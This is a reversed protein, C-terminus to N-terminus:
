IRRIHLYDPATKIPRGNLKVQPKECWGPMRLAISFQADDKPHVTLEIKEQWPYNTRQEIRVTQGGVSLEATSAAYLHVYIENYNTSYIYQAFSALLRALNPPCCACGFWEQRRGAINAHVQPSLAEDHVTLPNAYFFRDGKLSVGSIVGNYLAREMVDAYEAKPEIQLFRQAAFVLAINACTEAYATENPLDFDTTFREGERRSGVGGTIYMRRQVASQWLRKCAAFLKKDGIEAAVDIMGSLLYLARVAHGSIDRQDRVPKHASFYEYTRDPKLKEGHVEAELDFYNPQQGREDIFFQALQLYKEQKTARYMKMLALEIEPHGCYGRKQGPNPGFTAIIHDAYRTMVSLLKRDGTAEFHAVAAEMLHGACYIEHMDRLNSWRKEPEVITFYINLYGDPQQAAAILDIADNVQKALETDPHTMLSYAAAEIWKAIDSDWFIHPKNPQSPKRNLLFADLRGTQKCQQYQIPLTIKRNREIWQGWFGDTFKVEKLAAPHLTTMKAM